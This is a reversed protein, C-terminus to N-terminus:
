LSWNTNQHLDPLPWALFLYFELILNKTSMRLAGMVAIVVTPWMANASPVQLKKLLM